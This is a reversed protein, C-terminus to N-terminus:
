SRPASAIAPREALASMGRIWAWNLPFAFGDALTAMQERAEALCDNECYLETLALRWAALHPMGEVDARVADTLESLRGQNGRIAFLQARFVVAADPQGGAM